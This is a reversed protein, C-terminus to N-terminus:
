AMIDTQAIYTIVLNEDTIKFYGSLPQYKVVLPLWGTNGYQYEATNIDPIVVGDVKQLADTLYALVLEGNFPLAKLYNRIADAVPSMSAGDLRRGQNDLVLPNYYIALNLRLSDAERSIIEMNDGADQVRDMYEVFAALEGPALPALESGNDKAVKITLLVRNQHRQRVVASYSVIKSAKIEDPTKGENDFEGKDNLLNFGYQFLKALNAYWRTTHPNKNAITEEVESKHLDFLSELAWIATAVVYFIISEISVTSFQDEFSKGEKIDYQSRITENAIFADTITKKIDSIKRM